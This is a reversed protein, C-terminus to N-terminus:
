KIGAPDLPITLANNPWLRFRWFKLHRTDWYAQWIDTGNPPDGWGHHIIIKDRHGKAPDSAPYHVFEDDERRATWKMTGHQELTLYNIIHDSHARSVDGHPAHLFQGDNQMRASWKTGDHTRYQISDTFERIMGKGM